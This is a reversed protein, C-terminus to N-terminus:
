KLKPYPKATPYINTNLKYYCPSCHIVYNDTQYTRLYIESRDTIKTVITPKARETLTLDLSFYGHQLLCPPAQNILDQVRDSSRLIPIFVSVQHSYKSHTPM